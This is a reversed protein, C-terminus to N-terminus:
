LNKSITYINKKTEFILDETNVMKKYKKLERLVM